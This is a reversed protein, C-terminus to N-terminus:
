EPQNNTTELKTPDLPVKILGRFDGEAYGTACDNPYHQQILKQVAPKIQETPGHCQLCLAQLYLPKYYTVVDENRVVVDAKSKSALFEAIVKADQGKALNKPNRARDTVRTVQKVAPHDVVLNETMTQAVNACVSVAAEPGGGKMAAQLQPVLAGMLTGAAKRGALLAPDEAATEAYAASTALLILLCVRRIM